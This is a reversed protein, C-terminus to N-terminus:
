GNNRFNLYNNFIFINSINVIFIEVPFDLFINSISLPSFLQKLINKKKYDFM